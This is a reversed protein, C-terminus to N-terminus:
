AASVYMSRPRGSRRQCATSRAYRSWASSTYRTARAIRRSGSAATSAVWSVNARAKSRHCWYSEFRDSRAHSWPITLLAAISSRRRRRTRRSAAGAIPRREPAWRLLRRGPSRLSPARGRRLPGTRARAAPAPLGRDEAVVVAVVVGLDRREEPRTGPVDARDEAARVRGKPAPELRGVDVGGGVGGAAPPRRAHGSIVSTVRHVRSISRGWRNGGSGIVFPDGAQDPGDRIVPAHRWLPEAIEVQRSRVPRRAACRRPRASRMMPGIAAARTAVTTRAM